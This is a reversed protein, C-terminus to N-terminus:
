ASSVNPIMRRHVTLQRANCARKWPVPSNWRNTVLTTIVVARRRVLYVMLAPLRDDRVRHM